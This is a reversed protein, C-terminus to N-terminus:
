AQLRRFLEEARAKAESLTDNQGNTFPNINPAVEDGEQAMGIGSLDLPEHSMAIEVKQKKPRPSRWLSNACQPCKKPNAKRPTWENGCHHCTRPEV